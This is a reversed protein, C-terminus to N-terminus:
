ETDSTKAKCTSIGLPLYAPCWNILATALPIIGVAGWWFKFFAGAAIIIIGAAIRLKKDLGGVNAKM